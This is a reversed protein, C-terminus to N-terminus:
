LLKYSLQQNCYLRRRWREIRPGASRPHGEPWGSPRDDSGPAEAAWSIADQNTLADVNPAWLDM